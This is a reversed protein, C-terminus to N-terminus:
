YIIATGTITHDNDDGACEVVVDYTKGADLGAFSLANHHNGALSWHTVQGATEQTEGDIVRVNYPDAYGSQLFVTTRGNADPTVTALVQQSGYVSDLTYEAVRYSSSLDTRGADSETQGSREANVRITEMNVGPELHYLFFDEATVPKIQVAPVASTDPAAPDTQPEDSPTQAPPAATEPATTYATAYAAPSQAEIHPAVAMPAAPPIDPETPPVPTIPLPVTPAPVPKSVFAQASAPAPLPTPQVAARAACGLGLIGAATVATLLVGAARATRRVHRHRQILTLRKEITRRGASMATTVSQRSQNATGLMRLITKMYQKRRPEDWGAVVAHDCSLECLTNLDRLILYSAPNFWHITRVLVALWKYVLDHRKCHTLEHAFVCGLEDESLETDPLLIMPRLVGILMATDVAASRYLRVRCRVGILTICRDLQERELGATLPVGTRKVGRLVERYSRGFRILSVAAVTLWLVACLAAWDTPARVPSVSPPAAYVILGQVAQPLPSPAKKPLAPLLPATLMVLLVPLWGYYQWKVGLVKGFPVRLLRILLAAAATVASVALYRAFITQLM